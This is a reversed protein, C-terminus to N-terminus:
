KIEKYTMRHSLVTNQRKCHRIFKKLALADSINSPVNELIFVKEIFRQEINLKSCKQQDPHLYIDEAHEVDMFFYLNRIERKPFVKVPKYQEKIIESTGALTGIISNFINKNM